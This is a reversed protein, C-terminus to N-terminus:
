LDGNPDSSKSLTSDATKAVLLYMLEGARSNRITLRCWWPNILMRLRFLPYNRTMETALEQDLDKAARKKLSHLTAKLLLEWPTFSAVKKVCFGEIVALGHIRCTQWCRISPAFTELVLERQGQVFSEAEEHDPQEVILGNAERTAILDNETFARIHVQMDGLRLTSMLADASFTDAAADFDMELLQPELAEETLRVCEVYTRVPRKLLDTEFVELGVM